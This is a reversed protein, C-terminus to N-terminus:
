IGGCDRCGEPLQEVPVDPSAGPFWEDLKRQVKDFAEIGQGQVDSYAQDRCFNEVVAETHLRIEFRFMLFHEGYNDNRSVPTGAVNQSYSYNINFALWKALQQRFWVGGGFFKRWRRQDAVRNIGPSDELWMVQFYPQLYNSPLLIDKFGVLFRWDVWKEGLPQRINYSGIVDEHENIRWAVSTGLAIHKRRQYPEDGARWIQSFLEGYGGWRTLSAPLEPKASTFPGFGQNSSNWEHEVWANAFFGKLPVLDCCDYTAANFEVTAVPAFAVFTDPITDLPKTNRYHSFWYARLEPRLEMYLDSLELRGITPIDVGKDGWFTGPQFPRRGISPAITANVGEYRTTPEFERDHRYFGQRYLNYNAEVEIRGVWDTGGLGEERYSVYLPSPTMLVDLTATKDWIGDISDDAYYYSAAFGADSEKDRRDSPHSTFTNLQILNFVSTKTYPREFTRRLKFPIEQAAAETVALALVALALVVLASIARAGRPPKAQM